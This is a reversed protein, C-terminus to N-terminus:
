TLALMWSWHAISYTMLYILYQFYLQCSNGSNWSGKTILIGCNWNSVGIFLLYPGKGREKWQAEWDDINLISMCGSDIYKIQRFPGTNVTFQTHLQKQNWRSHLGLEGQGICWHPGGFLKRWELFYFKYLITVLYLEKLKCSEEM